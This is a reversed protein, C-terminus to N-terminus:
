PGIGYRRDLDCGEPMTPAHILAESGDRCQGGSLVGDDGGVLKPVGTEIRGGDCLQLPPAHDVPETWAREDDAPRGGCPQRGEGRGEEIKTTVAEHIPARSCSQHPEVTEVGVLGLQDDFSPDSVSRAGAGDAGRRHRDRPRIDLGDGPQPHDAGFSEDDVARDEPEGCALGLVRDVRRDPEPQERLLPEARSCEPLVASSHVTAACHEVCQDVGAALTPQFPPEEPQHALGPKRPRDGLLHVSAVAARDRSHVELEGAPQHDLHRAVPRVWRWRSASRIV